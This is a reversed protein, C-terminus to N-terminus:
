RAKEVKEALASNGMVRLANNIDRCGNELRM